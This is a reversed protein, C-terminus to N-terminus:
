NDVRQAEILGRHESHRQYRPMQECTWSFVDGDEQLSAIQNILVACVNRQSRQAGEDRRNGSLAANAM